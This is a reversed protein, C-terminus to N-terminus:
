VPLIFSFRRVGFQNQLNMLKPLAIPPIRDAFAATGGEESSSAELACHTCSFGRVAVFRGGKGEVVGTQCRSHENRPVTGDKIPLARPMFDSPAVFRALEGRESPRM